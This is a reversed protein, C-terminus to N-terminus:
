DFRNEYIQFYGNNYILDARKGAETQPWAAYPDEGWAFIPSDSGQRSIIVYHLDNLVSIDAKGPGQALPPVVPSFAVTLNPNHYLVLTGGVGYFYREEPKVKLAFFQTGKLETTLVQPWSAEGSYNALPNLAVFLCMLAITFGIM